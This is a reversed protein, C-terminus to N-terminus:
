LIIESFSQYHDATYYMEGLDGAVIRRAGRDSSGPTIVTYERYHGRNFDPLIGERNQFVSDDKAFPYPGGDLILNVTDVAEPPLERLTIPALNSFQRAAPAALVTTETPSPATTAATEAITTQDSTTAIKADDSGGALAAAAWIALILVVGALFGKAGDSM